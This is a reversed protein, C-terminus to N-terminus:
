RVNKGPISFTALEDDGQDLRGLAASSLSAALGDYLALADFVRGEYCVKEAHIMTFKAVGLNLATLATAGERM